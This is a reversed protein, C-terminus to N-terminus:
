SSTIRAPFTPLPSSPSNAGTSTAISASPASSGARFPAACPPATGCAKASSTTSTARPGAAQGRRGQPPRLRRRHPNECAHEHNPFHSVGYLNLCLMCRRSRLKFAHRAILGLKRAHAGARSRRQRDVRAIRIRRAPPERRRPLSHLAHRRARHAGRLAFRSLRPWWERTAKAPPRRPRNWPLSSQPIAPLPRIPTSWSPRSRSAAASPRSRRLRSEARRARRAARAM